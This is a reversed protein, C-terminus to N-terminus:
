EVRRYSVAESIHETRIVSQGDLDAATRAVRLIRYYARVSLDLKEFVERLLDRGDREVECYREVQSPSLESNFCIDERQYRDKQIQAAEEVHRRMQASTEAHEGVSQLDAYSVSEVEAYLDIRDLVPASLRSRYRAIDAPRCRCRNMDPYYGCPCPNMAAVLMLCAPFEYSGHVRSITIKRDELPQRLIELSRRSFEPFEDLFLVGRHALSIEGPTPYRGGGSLAQPSATHHPARFPRERESKQEESLLGAISYVRMIELWEGPTLEPLITPIRQAIMSKGVGPPGCLLLNHFGAAALVAARKAAYQGKVESFDAGGRKEGTVMDAEPDEPAHEAPMGRCWALFEGLCGIGIIEPKEGERCFELARRGEKENERPVICKRIGSEAAKLVSPLIGSVRAVSGDLGLEGALMTDKLREAPLRGIAALVAAAIPLDFRTGAKPISAPALNITLRRPPLSIGYNKLASRIRDQAERVQHNLDGVMNMSPLGDSSDAEVRVMIVEMGSIEPAQVSAFM